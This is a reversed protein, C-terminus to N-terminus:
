RASPKGGKPKTAAGVRKIRPTSHYNFRKLFDARKISATLGAFPKGNRAITKVKVKNRTQGTGPSVIKVTRVYEITGMRRKVQGRYMVDENWLQGAKIKM